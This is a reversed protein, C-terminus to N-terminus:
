KIFIKEAIEAEYVLRIEEDLADLYQAITSNFWPQAKRSTSGVLSIPTEKGVGKELFVGYRRFSFALAFLAGNKKRSKFNLHKQLDGQFRNKEIASKLKDKVELGWNNAFKEFEEALLNTM